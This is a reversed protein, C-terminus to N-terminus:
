NSVRNLSCVCRSCVPNTAVDLNRRFATAEPGNLVELLTRGANLRGIPQHFFCPRVTGDAEIVASVWPANCSPAVPEVLGLHARFHSAIRRLKAPSELVFGGSLGRDILSEIERDLLPLESATLAIEDQRPLLWGGPRNFASSSVDAALFSISRAGLSQATTATDVLYSCNRAQVTSRVSVPFDPWMQFIATVGRALSDYAGRVRRIQDHIEPPGDLSVIVDDVCTVVDRCYRELLLGTTLVTIRINRKRLLRCLRFLDSHMLPEGGTFVVWEVRLQEISTVHRELDEESIELAQDTKWIDCMVCRCNCRNHPSLILIPLKDLTPTM